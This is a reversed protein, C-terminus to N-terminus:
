RLGGRSTTLVAHTSGRDNAFVTKMNTKAAKALTAKWMPASKMSANSQLSLDLETERADAKFVEDLSVAEAMRITGEYDTYQM